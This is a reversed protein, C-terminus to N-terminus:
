EDESEKKENKQLIDIAKTVVDPMPVGMLGANEVISITENAIFAIIVTNRIYTAGVALDLRYAVLVILLIMGKRCIGKFGTNSELAGTDTKTSKHFVGAVLMGSLYDIGMFILLTALSSDWGGFMAAIASGVVGIISCFSVKMREGEKGYLFCGSSKMYRNNKSEQM